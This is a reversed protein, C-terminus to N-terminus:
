NRTNDDVGSDRPQQPPALFPFTSRFAVDNSNVNDGTTVAGNTVLFLFTDVM